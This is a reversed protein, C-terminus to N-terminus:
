LGSNSVNMQLCVNSSFPSLRHSTLMQCFPFLIKWENWITYLANKVYFYQGKM